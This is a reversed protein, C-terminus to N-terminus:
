SMLHAGASFKYIAWKPTLDNSIAQYCQVGVLRPFQPACQGAFTFVCRWYHVYLPGQGLMLIIATLILLGWSGLALNAIVDTTAQWKPDGKEMQEASSELRIGTYCVTIIILGCMVHLAILVNRIKDAM